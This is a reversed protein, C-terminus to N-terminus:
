LSRDRGNKWFDNAIERKATERMQDELIHMKRQNNILSLFAYLSLPGCVLALGCGIWDANFPSHGNVYGFLATQLVVFIGIAFWVCIAIQFTNM